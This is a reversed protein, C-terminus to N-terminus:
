FSGAVSTREALLLAANALTVYTAREEEPIAQLHADITVLDGRSAPGTLAGSPGYHDVDDLASHALPLFDALELGAGEALRAVHGMLAVLHNAAVCATAHYAARQENSLSFARGGLSNVVESAREDGAVCYAAGILRRAGVTPEPLAVLPHLSAVRRHSGLVDLRRSGACHALVTNPGLEMRAATEILKDDPVCLLVLDIEHPFDLREHHRLEVDHGVKRLATAFSNGARGAGVIVIKM